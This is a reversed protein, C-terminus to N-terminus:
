RLVSLVYGGRSCLLFVAGSGKRESIVLVVAEDGM